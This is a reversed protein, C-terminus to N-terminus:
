SISTPYGCELGTRSQTANMNKESIYFTETDTSRARLIPIGSSLLLKLFLIAEEGDAQDNVGYGERGVAM